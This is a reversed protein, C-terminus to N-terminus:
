GQHDEQGRGQPHPGAQRDARRDGPPRQAQHAGHAATYGAPRSIMRRIVVAVAEVAGDVRGCCAVSGSADSRTVPEYASTGGNRVAQKWAAEADFVNFAIDKIGDGFRRIEDAAPHDKTLPTELVFRINGQTLLYQASERSGTTLDCIQDVQFGFASAYFFASQKANGVYFRVHDVDILALPDTGTSPRVAASPVASTM